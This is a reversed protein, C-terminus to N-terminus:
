ACIILSMFEVVNIVQELNSREILDQEEFPRVHLADLSIPSFNASSLKFFFM